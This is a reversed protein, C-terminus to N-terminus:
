PRGVPMRRGARLGVLWVVVRWGLMTAGLFGATVGLFAAATGQGALVRLAMGVLAAGLWAAVGAPWIAGPRTWARGLLWGIVLGGLFPWSTHVMGVVSVGVDHVSRGIGVFAVVSLVDLLAAAVVAGTRGSHAWRKVFASALSALTGEPPGTTSVWWV